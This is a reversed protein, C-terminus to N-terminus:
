EDCRGRDTRDAEPLVVSRVGGRRLKLVRNVRLLNACAGCAREWFFWANQIIHASFTLPFGNRINQNRNERMSRLFRKSLTSAGVGRVLALCSEWWSSRSLRHEKVALHSM